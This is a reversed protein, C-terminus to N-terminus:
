AFTVLANGMARAGEVCGSRARRSALRACGSTRFRGDTIVALTTGLWQYCGSRASAPARGCTRILAMQDGPRKTLAVVNVGHICSVVDRGRLRLCLELQQFPDTSSILSAGAICGSRQVGALGACLARLRQPTSPERNPQRELFYRYWCPVVFSRIQRACLSRATVRAKTPRRTDDRGSLAIWYDHYVGQACDPAQRRPLARCARVGLALQDHYLRMYAHGLSHVCTYSRFRTPARLCLKIAGDPGLRGIEPGLAMVMGMGFGASCGPDNSRPLYRRLTALTVHHRRAFRRGIVHMMMHCSGELYGGVAHVRRDIRPLERAPDKSREIRASLAKVYCNWRASESKKVSCRYLYTPQQDTLRVVSPPGALAGAPVLALGCAAVAVL